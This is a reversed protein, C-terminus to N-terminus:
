DVFNLFFFSVYTTSCSKDTTSYLTKDGMVGMGICFHLTPDALVIEGTECIFLFQNVLFISSGGGFKFPQFVGSCGGTTQVTFLDKTTGDM